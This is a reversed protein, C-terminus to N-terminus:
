FNDSQTEIYISNTLYSFAQEAKTKIDNLDEQNAELCYFTENATKLSVIIHILVSEKVKNVIGISLQKNGILLCNEHLYCEQQTKESIIAGVQSAFLREFCVGSYMEIRPLEIAFVLANEFQIPGIKTPAEFILLSGLLSLNNQFVNYAFKQHILRCEYFPKGELLNVTQEQTLIM